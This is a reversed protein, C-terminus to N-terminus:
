VADEGDVAVIGREHCIWHMPIDHSDVPIERLLQMSWCVGIRVAGALRPDALYRDYYGRGRGLRRGNRDFALGPSIIAVDESEDTDFEEGYGPEPQLIGRPTTELRSAWEDDIRHFKMIGADEVRPLYVARSRLMEGIFGALDVEGPFCPVWALVHRIPEKSCVQILRGLHACLEGHAAMEWRKDLNALVTRMERRVETKRQQGM